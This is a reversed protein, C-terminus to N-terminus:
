PAKAATFSKDNLTSRPLKKEIRPGEPQPLVVSSRMIAPKTAVSPPSIRMPPADIFPTAGFRRGTLM